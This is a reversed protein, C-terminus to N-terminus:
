ERHKDFHLLAQQAGVVQQLPRLSLTPAAAAASNRCEPWGRTHGVHGWLGQAAWPVAQCLVHSTAAKRATSSFAKGLSWFAMEGWGLSWDATCGERHRWQGQSLAAVGPLPLETPLPSHALLM